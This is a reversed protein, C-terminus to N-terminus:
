IAIALHERHFSVLDDSAEAKGSGFSQLNWKDVGDVGELGNAFTRFLDQSLREYESYDKPWEGLREVALKLMHLHQRVHKGEEKEGPSASSSPSSMGSIVGVDVDGVSASSPDIFMRLANEHLAAAKRYYRYALEHRGKQEQYGQAMSTYMQSLLVTMEITSPHRPGHVRACNYVLDEALGVSAAYDNILYRTIVLMRGLALTYAHQPQSLTYADRSNWLSTLVWALTHYDHQEDLVKILSNVNALDLHVLEINHEKFYGLTDRLITASVGLMQKQVSAAPPADIERGAIALGLKFMLKSTTQDSYGHHASIYKMAALALHCASQYDGSDLQQAVRNYSAIAVSRIFLRSAHTGFYELLTKIFVKVQNSDMNLSSGESALFSSSYQDVVQTAASRRGGSLLFAHLRAVTAITHQLKSSKSSLATRFQEFYLYEKTLAAHVENLTTSANASEQIIHELQALFILGLRRNSSQHLRLASSSRGDNTMIQLYIEDSLERAKQLQGAAIYGSVISKAAATLRISSTETSLVQVTAEELMSIAAQIKNQKTYLSVIEEMQSLAEEHAWGYSSRISTLRQMRISEVKHLEKTSMNEVKSAALSVNQQEYIAGLIARIDQHDIEIESGKIQLLEEYLQIAETEYKKSQQCINALAKSAQITISANVGFLSICSKRYQVTVDHIVAFDSHAMRLCYVYRDYLSQVFTQDQLKQSITPSQLTMFLMRCPKLADEYRGQKLLETAVILVPEFADPHCTESNKNLIQIIQRYYNMAIPQPYTLRALTWLKQIVTPHDGGFRKTYDHLINQHITIVKDTQSTREYLRLLNTTVRELTQYGCAPRDCRVAHYLRTRINEEKTPRRRSRYCDALREALEICYEIQTPPLAVEGPSLALLSPWVIRLVPKLVTTADHWRHQSLYMEILSKTATTSVQEASSASYITEKLISETVLSESSMVELSISQIQKQVDKHLASQRSTNKACHKFVEIALVSLGVSKMVQALEFLHPVLVEPSPATKEYEEWFGAVISATETNRKQSELFSAYALVARLMALKHEISHNLRYEQSAHQWLEVYTQEAETVLNETKQREAQALRADLDFSWTILEDVEIGDLALTSGTETATDKRGHLHVLLSDDVQRSGKRQTTSDTVLGELSINIEQAKSHEKVCTYHESLQTLTSTVMVSTAGYHVKYCEVLLQLMEVRRTMVETKSDTIQDATGELFFQAMKMTILHRVSLMKQCIIAAEYFIQGSEAPVSTYIQRHFLAQSIIAQLTAPHNSNLIERYLSTQIGHISRLSPTMKSAWVTMQLLPVTPSTPFVSRLSKGARTVGQDSTCGFAINAYSPWYRLAFDLLPYKEMLHETVRGNLPDLSPEHSDTVSHKAYLLLRQTFDVNRDKIAPLLEGKSFVDLIAVRVQAHRLYVLNNQFFVLSAVPKLLQILDVDRQETVEAKNPQMSLLAALEQQALPRSATALWVLIKKTDENLKPQLTHSVLDTIKYGAKLISDVSKSLASKTPLHEDRVHKATLKAWLFSGDSAETIRTVTLEQDEDSMSKFVHSQHLIRRTVAAIDDFILGLTARVTTQSVDSDVPQSALTILKMSPNKFAADHLRHLLAREACSAEDVGDVILVLERAGALAAQLADTLANWLLDDFSAEDVTRQSQNYVNALVQYLQVNGLHKNFMQSLIGKIVARPPTNAAIRGNIPALISTYRTGGIPHQLYDNIVTSLVTKGCGPKGIISLVQQEGKLFRTLFPKVWMCTGEEREQASPGMAEIAHALTPDEPQLWDKLTNIGVGEISDFGERMLQHRWMLESAHDCRGRFSDIPSPFTSYIDVSVSESSLLLRHFHTTVQVVLTVLDALALILQDKVDSSVVFLEARDLLNGLGASCRYFFGFLGMLAPANSEGLELLSACYEYSLQAALHSDGAFQEIGSDFSHVREVFLAAWVLAKDYNSGEPPLKKMRECRIWELLSAYDTNSVQSATLDDSSRHALSNVVEVLTTSEGSSKMTAQQHQSLRKERTATVHQELPISTRQLGLLSTPALPPLSQPVSDM